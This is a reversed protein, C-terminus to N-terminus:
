PGLGHALRLAVTPDSVARTDVIPARVPPYSWTILGALICCCGLTPIVPYRDLTCTRLCCRAPGHVLRESKIGMETFSVLHRTLGLSPSM